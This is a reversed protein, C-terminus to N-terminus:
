MSSVIAAVVWMSSTMSTGQLCLAASYKSWASKIPVSGLAGVLTTGGQSQGMGHKTSVTVLGLSYDIM